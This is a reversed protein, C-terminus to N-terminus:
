PSRASTLRSSASAASPRAAAAGAAAAGGGVVIGSVSRDPHVQRALAELDARGLAACTTKAWPRSISRARASAFCSSSCRAIKTWVRNSRSSAAPGFGKSRARAWIVIVGARWDRSANLMGYM